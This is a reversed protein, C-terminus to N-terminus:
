ARSGINSRSTEVCEEKGVESISEVDYWTLNNLSWVVMEKIMPLYKIWIM